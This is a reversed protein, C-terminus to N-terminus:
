QSSSLSAAAQLGRLASDSPIIPDCHIASHNSSPGPSDSRLSLQPQPQCAATLVESPHCIRGCCCKGSGIPWRCGCQVWRENYYFKCTSPSSIGPLFDGAMPKCALHSNNIHGWFLSLRFSVVYRALCPRRDM